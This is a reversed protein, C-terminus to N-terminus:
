SAVEVEIRTEEEALKPGKSAFGEFGFRDFVQAFERVIQERTLGMAELSYVHKSTHTCAAKVADRLISEVADSEPYRFESYIRGLVRDPENVLDEYRVIMCRDSRDQDIIELPHEYWYKTWALVEEAYPYRVPPQSFLRWAYHFLSVTSPVAELPNRRDRICM